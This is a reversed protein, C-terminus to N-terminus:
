IMLNPRLVFGEWSKREKEALTWNKKIQQSAQGDAENTLVNTFSILIHISDANIQFSSIFFFWTIQNKEKQCHSDEISM